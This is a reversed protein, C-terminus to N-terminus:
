NLSTDDGPRRNSLSSLHFESQFEFQCLFFYIKFSFNCSAFKKLSLSTLLSGFFAQTRFIVEYFERTRERKKPINQLDKVIVRTRIKKRNALDNLRFTKHKKVTQIQLFLRLNFIEKKRNLFRSTLISVCLRSLDVLRNLNTSSGILFVGKFDKWLAVLASCNFKLRITLRFKSKGSLSIVLISFM